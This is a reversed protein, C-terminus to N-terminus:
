NSGHASAGFFGHQALWAQCRTPWSSLAPRQRALGVGHPGQEYIHLEAPVGARRLALYFLVSNESPVVPDTATHFLFTPPTQATVQKENSFREIMEASPREGLLNRRSGAHTYPDSMTIVPYCLIMLDPRSSQREVPDAAKANGADFHTGVSSALHGGASFGIIAIRKPDIKWEGARARATRMARLADSLPAPHHYRPAIRYRLVLATSGMANCWEAIQRGEHDVALGGYGGGPCIVVASANAREPKPRYITLSPIDAEESGKAGPAGDPWLTLREAAQGRPRTGAAFFLIAAIAMFGQLRVGHFHSM